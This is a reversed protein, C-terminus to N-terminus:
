QYVKNNSKNNCESSNAYSGGRKLNREHCLFLQFIISTELGIQYRNLLSEFRQRIVEDSKDFIMIKNIGSNSKYEVYSNSYFMAVRVLRYYDEKKARFHKSTGLWEIKSQKM